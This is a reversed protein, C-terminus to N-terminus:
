EAALRKGATLGNRWLSLRAATTSALVEEGDLSVDVGSVSFGVDPLALVEAMAEIDWIRLTWDDGGSYIRRGDPSFALVRVPQPHAGLLRVDTPRSLSRVAISGNASGVALYQNNRDIQLALVPSGQSAWETM